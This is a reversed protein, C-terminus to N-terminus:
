VEDDLLHVLRRLAAVEEPGLEIRLDCNGAASRRRIVIEADLCSLIRGLTSLRPATKGREYLSLNQQVVGSRRALERQTLHHDRRLRRIQNGIRNVLEDTTDPDKPVNLSM